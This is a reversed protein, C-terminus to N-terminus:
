PNRARRVARRSLGGRCARDDARRRLDRRRAPVEGNLTAKASAPKEKPWNKDDLHWRMGAPAVIEIERAPVCRLEPLQGSALHMRKELYDLLPQRDDKGLLVVDLKGDGPFAHPALPLNPGVFRINLVEVAFYDGSLDQGDAQIQWSRSRAKGM